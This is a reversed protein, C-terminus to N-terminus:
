LFEGLFRDIPEMETRTWHEPRVDFPAGGTVRDQRPRRTGGGALVSRVAVEVQEALVPVLTLKTPSAVLLNNRGLTEVAHAGLSRPDPRIEAKPAAYIGARLGPLDFVSSHARLMRLVGRIWAREQEESSHAESMSTFDSVLWVPSGDERRRAVLFLGGAEAEPLVTSCVPLGPADLVVMLSRRLVTRGRFGFSQTAIHGNGTGAALVYARASMRMRGAETTVLASTV